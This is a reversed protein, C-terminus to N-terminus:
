TNWDGACGRSKLYYRKMIIFFFILRSFVPVLLDTFNTSMHSLKSLLFDSVMNQSIVSSRGTSNEVNECRCCITYWKRDSRDCEKPTPSVTQRVLLVCITHFVDSHCLLWVCVGDTTHCKDRSFATTFFLM